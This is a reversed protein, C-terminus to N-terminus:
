GTDGPILPLEFWVLEYRGVTSRGIEAFGMRRYLEVAVVQQPTTELILSPSGNDRAWAIAAETLRRGIGQRQREPAVRMRMMRVLGSRGRLISTPVEVGGASPVGPGAREVGTMGVIQEAGDGTAVAVWFALYHESIRGLDPYWPQPATSTQGAPPTWDHLARLQGHDEPQYPRIVISDMAGDM